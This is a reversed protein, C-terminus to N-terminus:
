PGLCVPSQCSVANPIFAPCNYSNAKIFGLRFDCGKDTKVPFWYYSTNYAYIIQELGSGENVYTGTIEPRNIIITGNALHTISNVVPYILNDYCNYYTWWNEMTGVDSCCSGDACYQDTSAYGAGPLSLELAGQYDCKQALDQLQVQRSLAVKEAEEKSCNGCGPQHRPHHPHGFGKDAESPIAYIIALLLPLFSLANM